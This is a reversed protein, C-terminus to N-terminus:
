VPDLIDFGLSMQECSFPVHFHLLLGVCGSLLANHRGIGQVLQLERKVQSPTLEDKVKNAPRLMHHTQEQKGLNESCIMAITEAMKKPRVEFFSRLKGFKHM